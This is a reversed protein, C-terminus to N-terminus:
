PVPLASLACLQLRLSQPEDRRHLTMAPGRTRRRRGHPQMSLSCAGRRQRERGHPQMGGRRQREWGHPQMGRTEPTGQWSAAHGRTETTGQREGRWTGRREGEGERGTGKVREEVSAEGEGETGRRWAGEGGEGKGVTTGFQFVVVAADVAHAGRSGHAFLGLLPYSRTGSDRTAALLLRVSLLSAGYAVGTWALGALLGAQGYFYPLSLLSSGALSCTLLAVRPLDRDASPAPPLPFPRSLSSSVPSLTSPAAPLSLSAPPSPLPLPPPM